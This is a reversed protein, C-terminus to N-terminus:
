IYQIDMKNSLYLIHIIKKKEKKKDTHIKTIIHQIQEMLAVLLM